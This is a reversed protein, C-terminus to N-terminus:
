DPLWVRFTAGHGPSSDVEIMGGHRLVIRQVLALGIGTGEFEEETHLRHFPKFLQAAFQPDFGVGNDRVVFWLRGNRRETFFEVKPRPSKSSYKHANSLLNTLLVEALGPDARVTVGEEVVFETKPPEPRSFRLEAAMEELSRQEFAGLRSSQLEAVTRRAIASLDVTQLQLPQRSVRSLALLDDILSAMRRSAARMRAVMDRGAHDLRDGYDMELMAGFGEVARLPARLDHAVSYSFAELEQVAAELEATRRRVREELEANLRQIEERQRRTETVDTSVCRIGTFRGDADFVPKGSNSLWVTHGQKSRFPIELDRFPRPSELLSDFLPEYEVFREPDMVVMIKNGVVEEPRYGLIREIRDSVYVVRGERDFETIYEAAAEAVDQFRRESAELARLMALRESADRLVWVQVEGTPVTARAVTIEADFAREPGALRAVVVERGSECDELFREADNSDALWCIPDEGMLSEPQRGLLQGIRRNAQLVRREPDLVAIGDPSADMIQRLRQAQEALEETRERVLRELRRGETLAHLTVLVLLLTTSLGGFLIAKAGGGSQSRLLADTARLEVTGDLGALKLPSRRHLLGQTRGFELTSDGANLRLVVNFDTGGGDAVTETWRAPDFVAVLVGQLGRGTRAPTCAGILGDPSGCLRYRGSRTPELYRLDAPRGVPNPRDTRWLLPRLRDDRWSLEVVSGGVFRRAFREFEGQTVEDSNEFFARTPELAAALNLSRMVGQMRLEALRALRDQFREEELARVRWWIGLTAGGGLCLILAVLVAIRAAGERHDVGMLRAWRDM